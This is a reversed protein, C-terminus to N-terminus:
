LNLFRQIVPFVRDVDTFEQYHGLGELVEVRVGAEVMEERYKEAQAVADVNGSGMILLAPCNLDRPRVM